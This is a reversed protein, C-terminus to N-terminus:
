HRRPPPQPTPGQSSSSSDLVYAQSTTSVGGTDTAVAEFALKGSPLSSSGLSIAFPPSNQPAGIAAGNLLFSVNAINRMGSGPNATAVLKITGASLNPLVQLSVVPVDTFNSTNPCVYSGANGEIIGALYARANEWDDENISWSVDAPAWPYFVDWNARPGSQNRSLMCQVVAQTATPNVQNAATIYDVDQVGRRWHKMRLSAFVGPPVNYANDVADYPAWSPTTNTVDYSPYFLVGESNWYITQGVIPDASIEAGWTHATNFLDTDATQQWTTSEWYFMRSVGKYYSAWAFERPGVGEEELHFGGNVPPGPNYSCLRQGRSRLLQVANYTSGDPNTGIYPHNEGPNYTNGYGFSQSCVEDLAPESMANYFDITAFTKMAGGPGPNSKITAAWSNVMAPTSSGPKGDCEDCMYWFYDTSPANNQFWTVWADTNQWWQDQTFSDFQGYTGISYLTEPTNTGPGGYGSKSGFLTGNLASIALDSPHNIPYVYQDTVVSIKHRHAIKWANGLVQQNITYNPDGVDPFRVGSARYGVSNDVVLMTKASPVDPLSFKRVTLRVPIQKVSQNNLSVTLIGTYLGDPADKPIYIDAWVSQNNGAAINFGSPYLELPVAIDPYNANTNPRDTWAGTVTETLPSSYAFPLRLAQPVHREDHWGMCPNTPYAAECPQDGWSYTLGTLPLYRVYFLEINRDKWTFIDTPDPAPSAILYQGPGVLSGLTVTVGDAPQEPAEIILNFAVVENRAGFLSITSGNWITNTTVQGHTSRLEAQAVKDEGGNAWIALTQSEGHRAAVTVMPIALVFLGLIPKFVITSHRSGLGSIDTKVVLAM